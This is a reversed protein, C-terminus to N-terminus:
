CVDVEGIQPLTVTTLTVRTQPAPPDIQGAPPPRTFPYAVGAIASVMEGTANHTNSMFRGYGTILVRPRSGSAICRPQYSVAFAVNADYQARAEATSTDVVVADSGSEADPAASQLGCAALLMVLSASLFLRM